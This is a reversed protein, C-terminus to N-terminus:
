GLGSMETNLYPLTTPPNPCQSPPPFPRLDARLESDEEREIKAVLLLTVVGAAQCERVCQEKDVEM